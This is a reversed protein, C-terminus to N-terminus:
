RRSNIQRRRTATKTRSSPGRRPRPNKSGSRSSDLRKLLQGFPISLDLIRVWITGPTRRPMQTWGPERSRAGQTCLSAPRHELTLPGKRRAGVHALGRGGRQMGGPSPSSSGGRVRQFVSVCLSVSSAVAGQEETAEREGWSGRGLEPLAPRQRSTVLQTRLEVSLPVGTGCPKSPVLPACTPLALM